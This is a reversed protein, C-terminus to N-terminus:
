QFYLNPRGLDPLRNRVLRFNHINSKRNWYSNSKYDSRYIKSFVPEIYLSVVFATNKCYNPHSVYLKKDADHYYYGEEDSWYEYERDPSIESLFVNDMIYGCSRTEIYESEEVGEYRESILTRLEFCSPLRWDTYGLYGGIDNFKKILEIANDWTVSISEGVIGGNKWQQGYSFRLWMLCNENDTAVGDKVMFRGIRKVTSSKSFSTNELLIGGASAKRIAEVAIEISCNFWEKSEHVGKNKLINHTVQEINRPENVLVDYAVEYPYPNGTNNLEAARLEPDKTSFGVKVLNPMSKTTIIYVWGKM